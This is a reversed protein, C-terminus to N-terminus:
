KTTEEVTEPVVEEKIDEPHYFKEEEQYPRPGILKELDSKHL